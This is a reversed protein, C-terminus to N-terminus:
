HGGVVYRIPLSSDRKGISLTYAGMRDFILFDGVKLRPLKCDKAVVDFTGSPGHVTSLVHECDETNKVTIIGQELEDEDVVLPVTVTVPDPIVEEEEEEEEDFNVDDEDDYEEDYYEDGYDDFTDGDM